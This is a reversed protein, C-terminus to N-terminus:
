RNINVFNVTFTSSYRAHNHKKAFYNIDILGCFKCKINKLNKM